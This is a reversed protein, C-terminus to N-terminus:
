SSHPKVPPPGPLTGETPTALPKGEKRRRAITKINHLVRQVDEDAVEEPVEPPERKRLFPVKIGFYFFPASLIAFFLLEFMETITM